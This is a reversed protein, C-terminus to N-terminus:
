TTSGNLRDSLEDYARLLEREMEDDYETSLILEGTDRDKLSATALEGGFDFLLQAFENIDLNMMAYTTCRIGATGLRKYVYHPNYKALRLQYKAVSDLKTSFEVTVKGDM